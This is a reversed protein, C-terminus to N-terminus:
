ESYIHRNVKMQKGPATSRPKRKHHHPCRRTRVHNCYLITIVLLLFLLGCGGALPGLIILSCYTTPHTEVPKINNTCVCPTTTTPLRPNATTTPPARTAVEVEGRVQTVEGFKVANNQISACIYTGSDRAKSFSNLKLIDKSIKDMNFAPPLAKPAKLSGGRSFSAIFEMGSNDLVRFWILTSYFEEPPKCKIEVSEGEMVRVDGDGSTMTPYFVLIVLIQIWKQDMKIECVIIAALCTKTTSTKAEQLVTTTQLM